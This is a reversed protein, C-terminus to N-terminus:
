APRATHDAGRARGPGQGTEYQAPTASIYIRKHFAGEYEEFNLPPTWRPPLRFGYKVLTEKRSRDGGSCAALQPLTAHSEDIIILADEPLYEM